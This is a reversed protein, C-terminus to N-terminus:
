NIIENKNNDSQSKNKSLREEYFGKAKLLQEDDNFKLPLELNNILENYKGEFFFGLGKKDRKIMDIYLRIKNDLEKFTRKPNNGRYFKQSISTNVETLAQSQLNDAFALIKGYNYAHNKIEMNSYGLCCNILAMKEHSLFKRKKTEFPGAFSLNERNIQVKLYKSTQKGFFMMDFLDQKIKKYYSSKPDICKTLSYISFFKFKGHHSEICSFWKELNNKIESEKFHHMKYFPRTTGTSIEIMSCNAQSINKFNNKNHKWNSLFTNIEEASITSDVFFKLPNFQQNIDEDTWFIYMKNLDNLKLNHSPNSLLYEIANTIKHDANQSIYSSGLQELGFSEVSSFNNSYISSGTSRCNPLGKVKKASISILHQNHEGTISCQGVRCEDAIGNKLWASYFRILEEDEHPKVYNGQEKIRFGFWGSLDSKEKSSLKEHLKNAGDKEYFLNIANIYNNSVIEQIFKHHNVFELHKETIKKDKQLTEADIGAVYELNDHLFNSVINNSRIKDSLLFKSGLEDLDIFEGNLDITILYNLKKSNSFGFPVNLQEGFKYLENLLM